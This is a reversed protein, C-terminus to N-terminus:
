KRDPSVWIYAYIALLVAFSAMWLTQSVAVWTIYHSMDILPFVVRVIASCLMLIFVLTLAKPPDSVARGTHGLSVRSMIGITMMGIGGIAFAHTALQPMVSGLVISFPKIAFGLVTIAYAVFLVWLLPKRWIGPTYWGILKLSHMVFLASSLIGVLLPPADFTDAFAFLLFVILSSKDVWKHHRPQFAYGVGKSIFMPLIRRSIIFVVAIIAYFGLYLGERVHGAYYLANSLTLIALQALIVLNGWQKAKLIPRSIAVALAFAFLIDVM